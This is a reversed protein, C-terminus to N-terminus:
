DFTTASTRRSVVTILVPKAVIEQLTASKESPVVSVLACLEDIARNDAIVPDFTKPM